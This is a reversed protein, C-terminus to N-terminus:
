GEVHAKINRTQEEWGGENQRMAKARWSEPVAEFGSEIVTLRTGGDIAELQFEVTTRPAGDFNPADMDEPHPWTYAFVDPADMRVIQAEWPYHEFGPYTMRGTSARGVEFPQDLAVKFWAGFERHDTLARWVREIPAKLEVTKVIRDSM